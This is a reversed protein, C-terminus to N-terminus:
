IWKEIDLCEKIQSTRGWGETSERAITVDEGYGHEWISVGRLSHLFVPKLRRGSEFINLVVYEIVKEVRQNAVPNKDFSAYTGTKNKGDEIIM